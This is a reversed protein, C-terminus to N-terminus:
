IHILSLTVTFTGPSTFVHIRYGGSDFVANGGTANITFSKGRLDNYSIQTGPTNFAAGALARVDSENLGLIQTAPRGLESNIDESDIPGSSPTPM